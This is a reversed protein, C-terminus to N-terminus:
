FNGAMRYTLCPPTQPRSQTVIYATITVSNLYSANHYIACMCFYYQQASRTSELVGDFSSALVQSSTASSSFQPINMLARYNLHCTIM